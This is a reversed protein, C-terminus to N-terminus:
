SHGKRQMEINNLSWQTVPLAHGEEPSGSCWTCGMVRGKYLQITIAKSAWPLLVILPGCIM